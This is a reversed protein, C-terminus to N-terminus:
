RQRTGTQSQRKKDKDGKDKGGNTEPERHIHRDKDKCNQFNKQRSYNDKQDVERKGKIKTKTLGVLLSPECQM